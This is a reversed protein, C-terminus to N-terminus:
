PCSRINWLLLLYSEMTMRKTYSKPCTLGFVVHSHITFTQFHQNFIFDKHFDFNLDMQLIFLYILLPIFSCISIISFLQFTFSILSLSLCWQIISTRGLHLRSLRRGFLVEQSKIEHAKLHINM